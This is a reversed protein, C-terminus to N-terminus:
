KIGKHNQPFEVVTNAKSSGESYFRFLEEPHGKGVETEVARIDQELKGEYM